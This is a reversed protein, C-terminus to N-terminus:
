EENLSVSNNKKEFTFEQVKSGKSIRIRYSGERMNNFDILLKKKHLIQEAVLSGNAQLIEVRAGVMKKDTKFVMLNKNKSSFPSWKNSPEKAMAAITLLVSLVGLVFIKFLTKM